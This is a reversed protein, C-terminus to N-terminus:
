WYVPVIVLNVINWVMYLGLLSWVLLFAGLLRAIILEQKYVFLSFAYNMFFFIALCGPIIWLLVRDGLRQDGWPQSFFLPIQPPLLAVNKYVFLASIGIIVASVAFCVNSFNDKFQYDEVLPVTSQTRTIRSLFSRPM